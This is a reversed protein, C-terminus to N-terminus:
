LIFTYYLTLDSRHLNQTLLTVVQLLALPIQITCKRPINYKEGKWSYHSLEDPGSLPVERVSPSLPEPCSQGFGVNVSKLSPNSVSSNFSKINIVKRKHGVQCSGKITRTALYFAFRHFAVKFLFFSFFFTPDHM